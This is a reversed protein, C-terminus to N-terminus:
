YRIQYTTSVQIKGDLDVFRLTASNAGCDLNAIQNGAFDMQNVTCDGFSQSQWEIVEEMSADTAFTIMGSAQEDSRQTMSAALNEADPFKVEDPVNSTDAGGFIAFDTEEGDAGTGTGSIGGPGFTVSSTEGGETEISFKGQQIDEFNMTILEGKEDRFTVTEEDSEVFELDPNMKIVMEAMSKAPNDQAEEIFEAAKKTVFLGGAFVLIAFVIILGVCGILVWALPSFGKKKEPQAGNTM